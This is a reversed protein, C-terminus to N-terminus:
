GGASDNGPSDNSADAIHVVTCDDGEAPDVGIYTHEVTENVRRYMACNEHHPLSPSCNCTCKPEYLSTITFPKMPLLSMRKVADRIAKEMGAMQEKTIKSLPVFKPTWKPFQWMQKAARANYHCKKAYYSVPEHHKWYAEIMVVQEDTLAIGLVDAAFQRPDMVPVETHPLPVYALQYRPREAM